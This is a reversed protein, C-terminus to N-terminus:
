KKKGFGSLGPPLAGGGLGPLGGPLGPMKGMQGSKQMQKAAQEIARSDMKSPDFGEPVDGGKGFMGKMAQKLMGGKGMKKMMDSMQRHMKLLKNLDSVEM